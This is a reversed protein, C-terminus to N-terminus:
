AATADIMEALAAQLGQPGRPAWGLGRLRGCDMENVAAADGREPLRGGTRTLAAYAELLDRRDLVIDSVNLLPPTARTLCLAVARALDEVHVETSVRAPVARGAAFDAFVATWKHLRRPAPPGYLGTSRLSVGDRAAVEAEIARKMEGYLTDPRPTMTEDLRTGPPFDGYVARSSLFVVRAAPLAELLRLTGDRNLRLFGEPDGGEGGRYRGRVHSFACHVLADCAVRPREGLTWTVHPLELPSPARGLTVVDLGLGALHAAIAHGALGTAGTLAIRM